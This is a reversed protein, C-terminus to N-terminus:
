EAIPRESLFAEGWATRLEQLVNIAEANRGDRLCKKSYDYLKFLGLSTEQYDFNLAAILENIARRSLMIDNKKAAVIAVDYLKGIVQVPTLNMTDEKRYKSVADNRRPPAVIGAPSSGEPAQHQFAYM